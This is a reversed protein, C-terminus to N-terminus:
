CRCIQRTKKQKKQGSRLLIQAFFIIVSYSSSIVFPRGTISPTYFYNKPWMIPKISLLYHTKTIMSQGRILVDMGLACPVSADRLEYAAKQPSGVQGIFVFKGRWVLQRLDVGTVTWLTDRADISFWDLPEDSLFGVLIEGVLWWICLASSLLATHRGWWFYNM